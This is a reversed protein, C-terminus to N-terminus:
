TFRLWLPAHDSVLKKCDVSFEVVKVRESTLIYDAHMSEKPKYFKRYLPTRTSRIRYKSILNNKLSGKWNGQLLAELAQTKPALNLDGGFVVKEVLHKSAVRRLCSNIERSQQDRIPDDGKTNHALWVGHIHAVLYRAGHKEYVIWQLVRQGVGKANKCIRVNGTSIFNLDHRYAMLSGFGICKYQTNTNRCVWQKSSPTFYISTYKEKLINLTQEFGNIQAPPENDGLFIKPVPDYNWNMKTVETLCIVDTNAHNAHWRLYTNLPNSCRHAWTNLFLASSCDIQNTM